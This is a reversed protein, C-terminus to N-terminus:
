WDVNFAQKYARKIQSNLFKNKMKGTEEWVKLDRPQWFYMSARLVFCDEIPHNKLYSSFKKILKCSRGSEVFHDTWSKLELPQTTYARDLIMLITKQNDKISLVPAVHFWWPFKYRRIYKKTFFLFFKETKLQYNKFNEWAWVHAMNTCQAEETFDDRMSSFIQYVEFKSSLITPDFHMNPSFRQIKKIKTKTSIKKDLFIVLGNDLFLLEEDTMFVSSSSESALVFPIKLVFFLYTIKKLVSLFM